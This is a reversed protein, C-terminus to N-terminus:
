DQVVLVIYIGFSLLTAWPLFNDSLWRASKTFPKTPVYVLDGASLPINGSLDGELFKEFDVVLRTTVGQNKRFVKISSLRANDKPGGARGLADLIRMGEKYDYTGVSTVEGSVTVSMSAFQKVSVAAQPSTVYPALKEAILQELEAANLGAARLMGAMPVDISGDPQVTLEKSLERAPFIAVNLLDGPSFRYEEVAPQVKQPQVKVTQAFLGSQPVFLFIFALLARFM